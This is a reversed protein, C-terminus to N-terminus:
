NLLKLVDEAEQNETLGISQLLQSAQKLTMASRYRTLLSEVDQLISQDHYRLHLWIKDLVQAHDPLSPPTPPFQYGCSCVQQQPRRTQHCCACISGWTSFLESPQSATITRPTKLIVQLQDILM